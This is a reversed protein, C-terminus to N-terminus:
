VLRGLLKLQKIEVPEGTRTLLLGHQFTEARFVGQYVPLVLKAM